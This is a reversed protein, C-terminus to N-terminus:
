LLGAAFRLDTVGERLAALAGVLTQRASTSRLEADQLELATGVGGRYRIQALRLNEDALAVYAQAATVRARAENLNLYAQRVELAVGNDLAELGFKAQQVGANAEAVGAATAGGDYLSFVANLGVSFQNHYGTTVAPLTNGDAVTLALQPVNGARAQDVAHRAASLAARAAQLEGRRGHAENLLTDLSFTPADGDLRDTPAYVNVLPVDLVNDLDSAALAVANDAAIANVQENALETQARLVDARAIQGSAFLQRAQTLHGSAVDVARNAVDKLELTAVLDFYAKTTSEILGGRAERESAEASSLGAAARAVRAASLGGDYLQYQLALLPVNTTTTTSFPIAGFPTALKAVPDAYLFADRLQLSPILPALAGRVRAQAADVAAHAQRYSPNNALALALAADLSLPAPSPTQAPAPAPGTAAPSALESPARSPAQALAPLSGVALALLATAFSPLAKLM